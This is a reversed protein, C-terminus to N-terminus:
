DAKRYGMAAMAYEYPDLPELGHAALIADASMGAAAMEAPTM